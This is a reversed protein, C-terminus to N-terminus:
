HKEPEKGLKAAYKEPNKKFEEECRKSCFYVTKGAYEIESFATEPELAM